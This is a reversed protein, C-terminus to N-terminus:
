NSMSSFFVYLFTSVLIVGLWFLVFTITVKRVLGGKPWGRKRGGTAQKQSDGQVTETCGTGATSGAVGDEPVTGPTVVMMGEGCYPCNCRVTRGAESEIAFLRHCHKCAIQFQM